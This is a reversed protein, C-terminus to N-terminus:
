FLMDNIGDIEERDPKAQNFCHHQCLVFNYAIM